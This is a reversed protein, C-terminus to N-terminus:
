WLSRLFVVAGVVAVVTVVAIDAAIAEDVIGMIIMTATIETATTIPTM